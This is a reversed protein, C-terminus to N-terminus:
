RPRSAAARRSTATSRTTAPTSRDAPSGATSPRATGDLVRTWPREWDLAAALEGWFAEPEELARRYSDRYRHAQM